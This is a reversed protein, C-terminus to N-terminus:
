KIEITVIKFKDKNWKSLSTKLTTIDKGYTLIIEQTLDNLNSVIELNDNDNITYLDGMDDMILSAHKRNLDIIDEYIKISKYYGILSTGDNPDKNFRMIPNSFYSQPVKSIDKTLIPAQTVQDFITIKNTNLYLHMKLDNETNLNHPMKYDSSYATLGHSMGWYWLTLYSPKYAQIATYWFLYVGDYKNTERTSILVNYRSSTSVNGGDRSIVMEISYSKTSDNLVNNATIFQSGDVRVGKKSDWTIDSSFRGDNNNGSLDKILKKDYDLNNKDLFNYHLLLKAM